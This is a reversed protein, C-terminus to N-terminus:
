SLCLKRTTCPAQCVDNRGKQLDKSAIPEQLLHRHYLLVDPQQFPALIHMFLADVNDYSVEKICTDKKLLRFSAQRSRPQLIM